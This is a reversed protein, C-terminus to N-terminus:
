QQRYAPRQADPSRTVQPSQVDSTQTSMKVFDTNIAPVQGLAFLLHPNNILLWQRQSQAFVGGGLHSYRQQLQGIPMVYLELMKSFQQEITSANRYQSNAAVFAKFIESSMLVGEGVVQILSDMGNVSLTGNALAQRLWSLFHEGMEASPSLLGETNALPNDFMSGGFPRTNQGNTLFKLADFYNEIVQADALPIVTMFSGMPRGESNLMSLWAELVDPNSALWNFGTSASDGGTEADSGAEDLLQRALLSTVLRGLNDRNEKVFDYKYYSGQKLMSGTYPLWPKVSTGDKNCVTIKYKVALKGLDLFLAATFVAYIWLAEQSTVTHFSKEEPYFYSLCLALARAAREIGHDLFGGVNSFVGYQTQPLGQVFEAFREIVKYYLDDYLKPPLHLLEKIKSLHEQRKETALLATATQIATAQPSKVAVSPKNPSPKQLTQHFGKFM